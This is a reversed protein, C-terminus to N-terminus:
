YDFAEHDNLIAAYHAATMMELNMDNELTCVVNQDVADIELGNQILFEVLVLIAASSREIRWEKIDPSLVQYGLAIFLLRMGFDHIDNLRVGSAKARQAEVIDLKQIAGLLQINPSLTLGNEIYAREM